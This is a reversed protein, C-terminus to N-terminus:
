DNMDLETQWNIAAAIVMELANIQEVSIGEIGYNKLDEVIEVAEMLDM